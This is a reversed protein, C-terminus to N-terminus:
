PQVWDQIAVIARLNRDFESGEATALEVDLAPIGISDVWGPATGTIPYESFDEGYPYGSTDGYVRALSDSDASNEGCNGAFM